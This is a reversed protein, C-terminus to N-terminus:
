LRDRSVFLFLDGGTLERKMEDRVLSALTDFSKRMDVPRGYAHVPLRRTSGIV